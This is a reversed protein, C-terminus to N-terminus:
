KMTFPYTTGNISVSAQSSCNGTGDGFTVIRTSLGAPTLDIKGSSIWPCSAKKILPYNPEIAVTYSQGNRNVGNESGTLQYTRNAASTDIITVTRNMAWTIVWNSATCKGNSISSSYSTGSNHTLTLTGQFNTGNVYYNSLSVTATAGYVHWYNSFVITILGSRTRGDTTDLVGPLPGYDITVTRPFSANVTTDPYSITPYTSQAQRVGNGGAHDVAISNIEPLMRSYEGDCISNDIPSQIDTDAAAKKCSNLVLATTGIIVLVVAFILKKM